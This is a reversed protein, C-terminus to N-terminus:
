EIIYLTNNWHYDDFYNLCGRPTFNGVYMPSAHSRFSIADTCNLQTATNILNERLLNHEDVFTKSGPVAKLLM